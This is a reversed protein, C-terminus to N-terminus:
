AATLYRKRLNLELVGPVAVVAQPQHGNEFMAYRLADVRERFLGGYLGDKDQVVWQGAKNRGIMFLRSAAKVTRAVAQSM